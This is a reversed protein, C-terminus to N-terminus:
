PIESTTSDEDHITHKTNRYSDVGGVTLLYEDPAVEGEALPTNENDIRRHLNPYTIGGQDHVKDLDTAPKASGQAMKPYTNESM